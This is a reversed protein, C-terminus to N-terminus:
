RIIRWRSFPWYIFLAKGKLNKHPVYGWFRSDFSEDRNDGMMFLCDKPVTIVRLNDRPEGPMIEPFKHWKYPEALAKGNVFVQKNIIQVTDGEVAIVRKVFDKNPEVPYIFVVIEGPKPMRNWYNFRSVFLRDKIELTPIMSGSPIKYAQIVFARINLVLIGAVVFVEIWERAEPSINFTKKRIITRYFVTVCLFELWQLYPENVFKLFHFLFPGCLFGVVIAVAWEGFENNQGAEVAPKKYQKTEKEPM